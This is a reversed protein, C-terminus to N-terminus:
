TTIELQKYMAKLIGFKRESDSRGTINWGNVYRSAENKLAQCLLELEEKSEISISTPTFERFVKM